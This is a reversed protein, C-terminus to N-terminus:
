GQLRRRGSGASSRGHDSRGHRPLFGVFVGVSIAVHVDLARLAGYCLRLGLGHMRMSLTRSGQAMHQLCLTRKSEQTGSDFM